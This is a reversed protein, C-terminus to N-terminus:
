RENEQPAGVIAWTQVDEGQRGAGKRTGELRFGLRQIFRGAEPWDAMVYAELRHKYQPHQPSAIQRVVTRAAMLGKGWSHPGLDDTAVLWLVGTWETLYNIGAVALPLGQESVLTWAPGPTKWRDVAFGEDEFDGRLASICWRDRARMRSCVALADALTMTRLTTEGTM